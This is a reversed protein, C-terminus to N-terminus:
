WPLHGVPLPPHDKPLARDVRWVTHDAVDVEQPLQRAPERRRDLEGGIGFLDEGLQTTGRRAALGVIGPDGIVTDTLLLADEPGTRREVVGASRPHERVGEEVVVPPGPEM